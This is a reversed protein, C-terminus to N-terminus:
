IGDQSPPLGDRPLFMIIFSLNAISSHKNHRFKAVKPGECGEFVSRRFDLWDSLFLMTLMLWDWREIRTVHDDGYDLVGGYSFVSLSLSLLVTAM